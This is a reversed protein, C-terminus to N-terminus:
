DPPTQTVTAEALERQVQMHAQPSRELRPPDKLFLFGMASVLGALGGLLFITQISMWSEMLGWFATFVTVYLAGLVKQVSFASAQTGAGACRSVWMSSPGVLVNTLPISILLMAMNIYLNNTLGMVVLSASIVIASVVHVTRLSLRDLVFGALITLGLTLAAGCSFLWGFQRDTLNLDKTFYIAAYIGIGAVMCGWILSINIFAMLQGQRAAILYMRGLGKLEQGVSRLPKPEDSNPYALLVVATVAVVVALVLFVAQYGGMVGALTTALVPAVIAAAASSARYISNALGQRLTSVLQTMTNSNVYVTSVLAGFVPMIVVLLAPSGLAIMASVAALAVMCLFGMLRLGFRDSLAGLLVVGATVGAFRLSRLNAWDGASMGLDGTVWLPLIVDSAVTFIAFLFGSLALSAM